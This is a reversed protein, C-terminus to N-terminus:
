RLTQMADAISREIEAETVLREVNLLGTAELRERVENWVFREIPKSGSRPRVCAWELRWTEHPLGYAIVENGSSFRFLLEVRDSM